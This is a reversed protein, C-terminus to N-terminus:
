DIVELGKDITWPIKSEFEIQVLGEKDAFITLSSDVRFGISFNETVPTLDLTHGGAHLPVTCDKGKFQGKFHFWGGYHHLGNTQRCYHSIETEKKYDIGLQDFLRKVEDPYVKDKNASFNKCDNCDCSEASGVTLSDYANKTVEKDVTLNWDKYKITTTM